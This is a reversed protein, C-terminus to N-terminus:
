RAITYGDYIDKLMEVPLVFSTSLTYGTERDVASFRAGKTSIHVRRHELFAEISSTEDIFSSEVPIHKEEAYSLVMHPREDLTGFFTLPGLFEYVKEVCLEDKMESIFELLQGAYAQSISIGAFPYSYQEPENDSQAACLLFM